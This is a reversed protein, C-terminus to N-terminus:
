AAQHTAAVEREAAGQQRRAELKAVLGDRRARREQLALREQEADLVVLVEGARVDRGIALHTALVRGDVQAAVTHAAAQVELRANEGVEYVAVRAALFWAAG